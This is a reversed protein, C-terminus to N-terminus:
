GYQDGYKFHPFLGGSEQRCKIGGRWGESEDEVIQIMQMVLVVRLLEDHVVKVKM